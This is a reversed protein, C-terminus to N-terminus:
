LFDNVGSADSHWGVAWPQGMAQHRSLLCLSRPGPGTWTPSSSSATGMDSSPGKLSARSVRTGEGLSGILLPFAPDRAGKDKQSHKVWPKRVLPSFCLGHWMNVGWGQRGEGHDGRM